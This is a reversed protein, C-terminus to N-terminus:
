ITVEQLEDIFFILRMGDREAIRQPLELAMRLAREPDQAARGPAIALEVADGLDAQAKMALTLAAGKVVTAGAERVKEILKHMPGRNALTEQAIAEALTAANTYKFLSVSVTYFREARLSGIAAECVSSKGTRRPAAVM